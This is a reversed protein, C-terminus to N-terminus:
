GHTQLLAPLKNEPVAPSWYYGQGEDCGLRTLLQATAENEIGEAVTKLGLGKAMNIIAQVLPEDRSSVGLSTIFSRDVKLTTANFSRLYGLNSYGTGFDDIAFTVGLKSLNNLQKQVLETDSILLSET